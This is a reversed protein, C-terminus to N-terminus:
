AQAETWSIRMSRLSVTGSSLNRVSLVLVDPGNPFGPTRNSGDGGNISNGLDRVDNLSYTNVGTDALFSFIQEGGLTITVGTSSSAHDIIQALSAAGILSVVSTTAWDTPLVPIGFHGPVLSSTQTSSYSSPNLIGTIQLPGTSNTGIALLKLQMRNIVERAGFSGTISNDVSPALRISVAAVTSNASINFNAQKAFSFVISRDEDYGGDMIVSTGWHSVVPALNTGTFTVTTVASVGASGGDFEAATFTVNSTTGGLRRRSLGDLVWGPYATNAYKDSYTMVEQNGTLGGSTSQTVTIQGASPWYQADQVVMQSDGSALSTGRAAINSSIFRTYPGINVVEYRAPLNGTRMFSAYNRNNNPTKHCYVIEGNAARFGYRITGAGYWTYDMYVMQMKSMDLVFGSKGFGDCRDLSWSSQEVRTNTTINIRANNTTVGRYRPAITMTTDTDVSVVQYSQGRIVVYDGGNVQKSFKTAVGTVISSGNTVNVLGYLEKISDRRVAYVYQGDYEMYFGNQADFMGARIAAGKFNKITAFPVGGPSVDVNNSTTFYVFTKATYNVSQVTFSGNYYNVAGSNTQVGDIVVTVGTSFTLPQQITVTVATGVSSMSNIDMTPTFKSGSSMQIGKGSQYRFYRRTQRVASIGEQTTGTSILVGGDQARHQFYVEPNVYVAGVSTATSTLGAFATVGTALGSTQIRFTNMSPVDYVKWNGNIVLAATPTPFGQLQIPAGALLGHNNAFALTLTSTAANDSIIANSTALTLNSSQNNSDLRQTPAVSTYPNSIIGTAITAKSSYAFSTANPVLNIQFTGDANPDSCGGVTVLDGTVLGHSSVTTVFIASRNTQSSSAISLINLSNGGARYYFSPYNNVTAFSEWKIGQLGYEFDTDILSEPAAIRLKNTADQATESFDIETNPEDTMIMLPHSSSMATTNYSLVFQTGTTEYPYTYSTIGLDPDSFNFLVTNSTSNVVLLLNERPIIKNPITITKTSPNFTYYESLVKKAM